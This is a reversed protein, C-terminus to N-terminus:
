EISELSRSLATMQFYRFPSPPPSYITVYLLFCRVEHVTAYNYHPIIIKDLKRGEKDAGQESAFYDGYFRALVKIFSIAHNTKRGVLQFDDFEEVIEKTDKIEPDMLERVISKWQSSASSANLSANLGIIHLFSAECIRHYSKNLGDFSPVLFSLNSNDDIQYQKNFMHVPFQNIM